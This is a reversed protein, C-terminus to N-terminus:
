LRFHNKKICNPTKGFGHAIKKMNEFKKLGRRIEKKTERVAHSSAAASSQGNEEYQLRQYLQQLYTKQTQLTNQVVEYEHEQSKRLERLVQDVEDDPISPPPPFDYSELRLIAKDESHGDLDM